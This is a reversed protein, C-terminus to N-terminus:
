AWAITKSSTNSSHITQILKRHFNEILFTIFSTLCGFFLLVVLSGFKKFSISELNRSECKSTKRDNNWRQSIQNLFGTQRLKKYAYKFFPLLPSDKPFAFSYHTIEPSTWLIKLACPKSYYIM